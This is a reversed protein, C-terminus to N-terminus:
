RPEAGDTLWSLPFTVLSIRRYHDKEYLLAIRGDPLVRMASYASHGPYVLREVRWTHGEDRSMRVTMKRRGEAPSSYLIPGWTNQGPTTLRLLAAQCGKSPLREVAEYSAFTTGGDESVAVGRGPREHDRCTVLLRGDELEVVNAEYTKDPTRGGLTWTKGHDDSLMLWTHQGGGAESKLSGYVPVVLRGQHPGQTLQVGNAPGPTVVHRERPLLDIARRDTWSLGDDGTKMIFPCIPDPRPSGRMLLFVEGTQWDVVPSPDMSYDSCVIAQESWTKGGDTSRKIVLSVSEGRAEAFALLTGKPTICLGPIRYIRADGDGLTWLDQHELCPRAFKGQAHFEHLRLTAAGPVLFGFNAPWGADSGRIKGKVSSELVVKGNIRMTCTDGQQKWDLTFSEGARVNSPGGREKSAEAWAERSGLFAHEIHGHASDLAVRITCNGEPQSRPYHYHGGFLFSVGAGDLKDVTLRAHIQFDGEHVALDAFLTHGWANGTSEPGHIVLAAAEKRMTGAATGTVALPEGEHVFIERMMKRGKVEADAPAAMSMGALLGGTLLILSTGRNARIRM